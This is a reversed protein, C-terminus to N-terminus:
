TWFGETFGQGMKPIALRAVNRTDMSEVIRYAANLLIAALKGCAFGTLM